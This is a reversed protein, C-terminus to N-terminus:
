PGHFRRELLQKTSYGVHRILLLPGRRVDGGVPQEPVPDHHDGRRRSRADASGGGVATQLLASADEDAVRVLPKLGFVRGIVAGAFFILAPAVYKGSIM